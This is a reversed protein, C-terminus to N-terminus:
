LSARFLNRNCYLNFCRMCPVASLSLLLESYIEIVIFISVLCLSDLSYPAKSESYIEIVIFISVSLQLHTLHVTQVRFLNRNCYLNFCGKGFFDYIDHPFESYIEIVIFISVICLLLLFSLM